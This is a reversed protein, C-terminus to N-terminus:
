VYCELKLLSNAVNPKSQVKQEGKEHILSLHSELRDNEINIIINISDWIRMWRSQLKEVYRWHLCYNKNEVNDTTQPTRAM